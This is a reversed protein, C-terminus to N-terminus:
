VRSIRVKVCGKARIVFRVRLFLHLALTLRVRSPKVCHFTLKFAHKITACVYPRMQGKLANWNYHNRKERCRSQQM